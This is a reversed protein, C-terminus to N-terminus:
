FRPLSRLISDTGIGSPLKVSHVNKWNKDKAGIYSMENRDAGMLIVTVSLSPYDLAEYQREGKESRWRTKAPDGLKRVVSFYNDQATLNLDQQLVAEYTIQGGSERGRFFAVLLATAIVGIILSGAILREIKMETASERHKPPTTSHTEGLPPSPSAPPMEIIRRHHPWVAGSKYELEQNLGVIMVPKDVQSVEGLYRRPVWLEMGAKTNSVLVESWTDKRCVWENHEVNLIPPYFSFPRGAFKDLEPTPM